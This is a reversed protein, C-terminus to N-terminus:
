KIIDPWNRDAKTVYDAQNEEWMKKVGEDYNLYLKGNVIKWAMPDASATKGLAVAYACYGGYQPAYQEPNKMFMDRNKQSSFLWTAGNWKTSFEPRGKVAAKDTFYAVTDYGGVAKDNLFGTYVPKEAAHAVSFCFFFAVAILYPKVSM